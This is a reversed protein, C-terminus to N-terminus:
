ISDCIDKTGVATINNFYLDVNLSELNTQTRIAKAIIAAGEAGIKNAYFNLDLAKLNARSLHTELYGLSKNSLGNGILIM